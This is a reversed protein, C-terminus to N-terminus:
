NDVLNRIIRQLLYPDTMVVLPESESRITLKKSSALPTYEVQIALLLERVDCPRSHAQVLGAELRSMELLSSLIQDLAQM